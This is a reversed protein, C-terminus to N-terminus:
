SHDEGDDNGGRLRPAAQLSMWARFWIAALEILGAAVYMWGAPDGTLIGAVFLALVTHSGISALGISIMFWGIARDPYIGPRGVRTVYFADGAIGLILEMLVVVRLLM